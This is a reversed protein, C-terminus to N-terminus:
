CTRSRCLGREGAGSGYGGNLAAKAEKLNDLANDIAEQNAQANALVAEAETLAQNYATQKETDAETYGDGTQVEDKKAYETELKSKDAQISALGANKATEVGAANNAQAIAEKAAATDSDVEAKAADKEADTMDSNDIAEKKAKAAQDIAEAANKQTTELKQPKVKVTFAVDKTQGWDSTVTVTVTYDTDNSLDRELNYNGESLSVASGDANKVISKISKQIKGTYDNGSYRYFTFDVNDLLEAETVIPADDESKTITASKASPNYVVIQYSNSDAENGSSDRAILSRKLDNSKSWNVESPSLQADIGYWAYAIKPDNPDIEYKVTTGDFPQINPKFGTDQPNREHGFGVYQVNVDDEVKIKASQKVLKDDVPRGEMLFIPGEDNSFVPKTQDQTYQVKLEIDTSQGSSLTARVTATSEGAQSSEGASELHYVIGEGIESPLSHGTDVLTKAKATLVDEEIPTGVVGETITTDEAVFIVWLSFIESTVTEGDKAIRIRRTYLDTRQLTNLTGNLVITNGDISVNLGPIPDEYDNKAHWIQATAGDGNQTTAVELDTVQKGSFGGAIATDSLELTLEQDQDTLAAARSIPAIESPTSVPTGDEPAETEPLEPAEATEAPKEPQEETEEPEASPEAESPTAPLAEDEAKENTTEEAPIASGDAAAYVSPGNGLLTVAMLLALLFSTIRKKM